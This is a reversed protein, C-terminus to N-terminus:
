EALREHRPRWKTPGNTLREAACKVHMYAKPQGCIRQKAKIPKSCHSCTGDYRAPFGASDKM